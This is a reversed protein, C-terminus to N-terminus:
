KCFYHRKKRTVLNTRKIYSDIAVRYREIETKVTEYFVRIEESDKSRESRKDKWEKSCPFQERASVHDVIFNGEKASSLFDNCKKSSTM